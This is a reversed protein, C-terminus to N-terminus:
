SSKEHEIKVLRKYETNLINEILKCIPLKGVRNENINICRFGVNNYYYIKIEELQIGNFSLSSDLQHEDLSYLYYELIKLKKPNLGIDDRNLLENLSNKILM